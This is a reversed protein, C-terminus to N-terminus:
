VSIVGYDNPKKSSGLLGAIEKGAGVLAAVGGTIEGITNRFKSGPPPPSPPPPPPAVNVSPSMLNLGLRPLLLIAAVVVLLITLVKNTM